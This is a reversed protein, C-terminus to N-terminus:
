HSSTGFVQFIGLIWHFKPRFISVLRFNVASTIVWVINLQLARGEKTKWRKAVFHGCLEGNRVEEFAMFAFQNSQRDKFHMGTCFLPEGKPQHVLDKCGSRGGELTTTKLCLVM